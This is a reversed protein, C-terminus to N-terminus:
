HIAFRKPSGPSTISFGDEVISNAGTAGSLRFTVAYTGPRLEAIQYRGEGDTVTERVKEILVPSAAEVTVGALGTDPSGSASVAADYRTAFM